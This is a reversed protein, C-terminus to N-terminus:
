AGSRPRRGSDQIRAFPRAQELEFALRLLTAEAGSPGAFMMGQPLGTATVALPLSIAPEGTVNQLPTFAIWDILRAMITAFDNTPDLHGILPTEAAVTPSLMVDYREYFRATLRSARSLRAMALPLMHLHRHCHRALGLTLNDLRTRDWTPGFHRRGTDVVVMALMAWYLVFDERLTASVPASGVLEVRHGLGDLLDGTRLTLALIEPSASVGVTETVIGVRLRKTGASTVDGIPALKAPRYVREAERYFAATDRVSRSLVGDSVIRIPMKRTLAEQALRGRSPKLGVLGNVSAPIRISGGGDNAHALPVVGAAVVASAGASSAGATRDTEWPSRVPGLRPHEASGSFGFESMRTKGLPILGTAVYMRCLDGDAAAPRAVFADSGAQTPMDRVDVNDKLFSPIGAFFGGGRGGGGRDGGGRDGGNPQRVSARARGYAAYALANLRPDVLEARAISAEVLELGSVRGARLEAVLGVADHEALADDTFASVIM